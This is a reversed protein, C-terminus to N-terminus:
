SETPVDKCMYKSSGRPLAIVPRGPKCLKLFSSGCPTVLPLQGPSSDPMQSGFTLSELRVHNAPHNQTIQEMESPGNQEDTLHPPPVLDPIPLIWDM